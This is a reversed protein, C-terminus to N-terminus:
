RGKFEPERKELFAAVAEAHDEGTAVIGYHSSILDLSTRLDSQLGQYVARKMMRVAVTPGQAIKRAVGYTYPMLEDDPLTVKDPCAEGSEGTFLGSELFHDVGATSPLGLPATRLMTSLSKWRVAGAAALAAPCAGATHASPWPLRTSVSGPGAYVALPVMRVESGTGIRSLAEGIALPM